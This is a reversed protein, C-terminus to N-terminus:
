GKAKGAKTQAAKAARKELRRKEALSGFNIKEFSGGAKKIKELASESARHAKIKFPKTIEGTGLISLLDCRKRIVGAKKLTEISLEPYKKVDIKELDQLNIVIYKLTSTLSKFGKKPIRRYLPTQGGEFGPRSQGGSRALQGKHGKGATGGRGSGPGRGLRKRRHTAGPQASISNLRLM